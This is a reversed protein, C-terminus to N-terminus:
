NTATPQIQVPELALTGTFDTHDASFKENLWTTLWHGVHQQLRPAASLAAVYHQMTALFFRHEEIHHQAEPLQFDMIVREEDEFHAKTAEVLRTALEIMEPLRSAECRRTLAVLRTCTEMMFQHQEDLVNSVYDADEPYDVPLRTMRQQASHPSDIRPADASTPM